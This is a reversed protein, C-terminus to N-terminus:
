QYERGGQEQQEGGGGDFAAIDAGAGGRLETQPQREFHRRLAKAGSKAATARRPPPPAPVELPSHELAHSSRTSSASSAIRSMLSPLDM